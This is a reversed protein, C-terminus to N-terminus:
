NSFPSRGLKRELAANLDANSADIAKEVLVLADGERPQKKDRDWWSLQTIGSSSNVTGMLEGSANPIGGVAGDSGGGQAGYGPVLFLVYPGALERCRLAQEPWTAGVVGGVRGFGDTDKMVKANWEAALKAVYEYLRLGSEKLELDQLIAAESNSTRIMTIVMRGQKLWKMWSNDFTPGLYPVSTCADANYKGFVEEGYQAMTNGIDGRKADLIVLLGRSHAYGILKQLLEEGPTGFASYFAIQPKVVPVKQAAMDVVIRMYKEIDELAHGTRMALPVHNNTPDLGVCLLSKTQKVRALYRDVFNDAM